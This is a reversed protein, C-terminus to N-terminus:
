QKSITLGTPTSPPTVDINYLYTADPCRSSQNNSTDFAAMNFKLTGTAPSDPVSVTFLLLQPTSPLALPNQADSGWVGAGKWAKGPLGLTTDWFYYGGVAVNDTSPNWVAQLNLIVQAQAPTVMWSGLGMAVAVVMAVCVFLKKWRVLKM